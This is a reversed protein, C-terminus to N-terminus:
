SLIKNLYQMYNELIIATQEAVRQDAIGGDANLAKEWKKAMLKGYYQQSKTKSEIDM